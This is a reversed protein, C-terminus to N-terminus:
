AERERIEKVGRWRGPFVYPIMPLMPDGCARERSAAIRHGRHDRHRFGDTRSKSEAAPLALCGLRNHIDHVIAFTPHPLMPLMPTMPTLMLGALEAHRRDAIRM